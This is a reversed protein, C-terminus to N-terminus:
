MKILRSKKYKQTLYDNNIDQFEKVSLDDIAVIPKM